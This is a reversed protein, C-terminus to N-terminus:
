VMEVVDNEVTRWYHKYFLASMGDSGSAKNSGLSFVIIKIEKTSPQQCLM